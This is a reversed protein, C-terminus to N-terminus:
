TRVKRIDADGFEMDFAIEVDHDQYVSVSNPNRPDTGLGCLVGTYRRRERDTRLEMKPSFIMAMLALLGPVPPMM